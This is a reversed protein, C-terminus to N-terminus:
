NVQFTHTHGEAEDLTGLVSCVHEHGNIEQVFSEVVDMNGDVLVRVIHNHAIDDTDESMSSMADITRYGAKANPAIMPKINQGEAGANEQLSKDDPRKFYMFGDAVAVLEWRDLGLRNMTVEVYGEDGNPAKLVRYEFGLM